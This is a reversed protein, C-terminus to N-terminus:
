DSSRRRRRRRRRSRRRRRRTRRWGRERKWRMRMVMTVRYQFEPLVSCADSNMSQPLRWDSTRFAASDFKDQWLNLGPDPARSMKHHNVDLNTCGLVLKVLQFYLLIKSWHHKWIMNYQHIMCFIKFVNGSACCVWPISEKVQTIEGALFFSVQM